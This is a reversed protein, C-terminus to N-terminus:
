CRWWWRSRAWCSSSRAGTAHLAAGGRGAGHRGACRRRGRGHDLGLVVGAPRASVLDRDGEAAGDPLVGRGRRDGRAGADARPAIRRRRVPVRGARRRHAAGARRPAPRLPRAPHGAAAAARRLGPLLRQHAPRAVISQSRPRPSNRRSSRTSRATCTPCCTDRRSPSTSARSRSSLWGTLRASHLLGAGSPPVHDHSLARPSSAPNLRPNISRSNM